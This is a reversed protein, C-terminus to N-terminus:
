NVGRRFFRKGTKSDVIGCFWCFEVGRIPITNSVVDVPDIITIVKFYKGVYIPNRDKHKCPKKYLSKSTRSIPEKPRERV